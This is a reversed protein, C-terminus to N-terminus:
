RFTQFHGNLSFPVKELPSARREITFLERFTITAPRMDANSTFDTGEFRKRQWERAAEVRSLVQASSVGLRIDLLKQYEVQRVRMHTDIM